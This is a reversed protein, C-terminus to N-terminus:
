PQELHHLRVLWRPLVVTGVTGAPPGEPNLLRGFPVWFTQGNVRCHLDLGDEGLMEVGECTMYEAEGHRGMARVM